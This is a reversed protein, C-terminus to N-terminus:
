NSTMGLRGALGRLEPAVSRRKGHVLERVIDRAFVDHRALEPAIQEARLLADLADDGRRMSTRARAVDIWYTARLHNMEAPLRSPDLGEARRTAARPDGLELAVAIGHLLVNGLGFATLVYTRDLGYRHADHEAEALLKWASPADGTRAAIYASTVLLSGHVAIEDASATRPANEIEHAAAAAVDLAQTEEGMRLLVLSRRGAITGELTPSEAEEAVRTALAVAVAALEIEGVQECLWSASGYITALADCASIRDQSPLERRAQEGRAVLRPLIAGLTSYQCGQRLRWTEAADDGLRRLDVTEEVRAAPTGRLLARRLADLEGGRVNPGSRRAVRQETLDAVSVALVGAIRSLPGMRRDLPIGREAKSLWSASVDALGSLQEQTMGRSLRFLRIREGIPIDQM